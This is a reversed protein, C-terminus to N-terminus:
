GLGMWSWVGTGEWGHEAGFWLERGQGRGGLVVGVGAFWVGPLRGWLTGKPYM